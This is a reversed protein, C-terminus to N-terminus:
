ATEIQRGSTHRYNYDKSSFHSITTSVPQVSPVLKMGISCVGVTENEIVLSHVKTRIKPLVSFPQLVSRSYQHSYSGGAEGAMDYVALHPKPDQGMMERRPDLHIDARLNQRHIEVRHDQHGEVLRPDHHIDARHSHVVEGRPNHHVEAMRPDLHIDARFNHHHMDSHPHPETYDEVAMRPNHYHHPEDAHPDHLHPEVARPDHHIEARLNHHIQQSARPDHHVEAVSNYQLLWERYLIM